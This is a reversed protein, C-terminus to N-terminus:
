VYRLYLMKTNMRHIDGVMCDMMTTTTDPGKGGYDTPLQDPDIFELLRQEMKARNSIVEVKAATRADLWGKILRWTASFFTPANVILMKSMTEPFCLSDIAAQEKVITLARRSLQSTTLHDLDLVCFCEFRECKQNTTSNKAIKPNIRNISNLFVLSIWELTYFCFLKRAINYVVILPSVSKKFNPNKAKEARLRNAFDHMMVHWHFKIM